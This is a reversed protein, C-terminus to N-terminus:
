HSASVARRCFPCSKSYLGLWQTICALHWTWHNCIPLKIVEDHTSLDMRCIVCETSATGDSGLLVQGVTTKPLAVIDFSHLPAFGEMYHGAIQYSIVLKLTCMTQRLDDIKHLLRQAHRPDLTLTVQNSTTASSLSELAQRTTSLRPLIPQPPVVARRDVQLRPLARHQPLMMPDMPQGATHLVMHADEITCEALWLSSYLAKEFEDTRQQYSEDSEATIPGVLSRAADETMSHAISQMYEDGLQYYLLVSAQLSAVANLPVGILVSPLNSATRRLDVLLQEESSTFPM